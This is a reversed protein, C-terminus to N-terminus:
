LRVDGRALRRVLGNWFGFPVRSVMRELADFLWGEPYGQWSLERALDMVATERHRDETCHADIRYLVNVTAARKQALPCASSYAVLPFFQLIAEGTGGSVGAAVNKTSMRTSAGRATVTLEMGCFTWALGDSTQEVTMGQPYCEHLYGWFIRRMRRLTLHKGRVLLACDDMLRVGVLTEGDRLRGDDWLSSTWQMEGFVCVCQALGPSAKGGIGIECTQRVLTGAVNLFGNGLIFQVGALIQERSVRVAVKMPTGPEFWRVGKRGRTNVLLTGETQMAKSVVFEVARLAQSHTLRVYMEKVDFGAAMVCDDPRLEANFDALAKGIEQTTAVNFHGTMETLLFCLCRGVRNQLLRDPAAFGPVVPRRKEWLTHDKHKLMLYLNGFKGALDLKAVPTLGAVRYRLSMEEVVTALEKEVKEYNGGDRECRLWRQYVMECVGFGVAVNRDLKGRALGGLSGVARRYEELAAIGGAAGPTREAKAVASLLEGGAAQFLLGATVDTRMMKEFRSLVRKEAAFMQVRGRVEQALDFRAAKSRDKFGLASQPALFAFKDKRLLCVLHVDAQEEWLGWGEEDANVTFTTAETTAQGGSRLKLKTWDSFNWGGAVYDVEWHGEVLSEKKSLRYLARDLSGGNYGVAQVTAYQGDRDGATNRRRVGVTNLTNESRQTRSIILKEDANCDSKSKYVGLPLMFFNHVGRARLGGYLKKEGKKQTQLVCEIHKTLRERKGSWFKGVYTRGTIASGLVYTGYREGELFWDKMEEATM